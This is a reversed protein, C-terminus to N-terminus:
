FFSRRYKSVATAPDALARAGEGYTDQMLDYMPSVKEGSELKDRFVKTHAAASHAEIAKRDKWAEVLTMHNPRNTQTLSDFRLNGADARSAESLERVALTGPDKEKGVVDVHTVAYIAGKGGKGSLPAVSLVIHPREDYPARLLPLLKERFAKTQVAAAHAERSKEDAWVELIAFQDPHSVRQLVEMRVYGADKRSARAFHRILDAAKGASAPVADVYSVVYASDAASAGQMLGPSLMLLVWLFRFALKM